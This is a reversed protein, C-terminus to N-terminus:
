CFSISLSVSTNVRRWLIQMISLIHNETLGFFDKVLSDSIHRVVLPRPKDCDGATFHLEPSLAGRPDMKM